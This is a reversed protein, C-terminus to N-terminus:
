NEPFIVEANIDNGQVTFRVEEPKVGGEHKHVFQAVINKLEEKNLVIKM